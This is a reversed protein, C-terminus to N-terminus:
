FAANHFSEEKRHQYKKIEYFCNDSSPSNVTCIFQDEMDYLDYGHEAEIFYYLEDGHETEIFYYLCDEAPDYICGRYDESAPESYPQIVVYYSLLFVAAVLPIVTLYLPKRNQYGNELIMHFRQCLKKKHGTEALGCGYREILNPKNQKELVYLIGSLYERQQWDALRSCVAKDSHMELAHSVESSLTRFVPNWWFIIQLLAAFLKILQHKSKYHALEHIFFGYWQDDHFSMDPILIVPHFFGIIAPGTINGSQKIVISSKQGGNARTLIDYMHPDSVEPLLHVLRCATHYHWIYRILIAIAGIGWVAALVQLVTIELEPSRICPTFLFRFICALIKKSEIIITFPLKIPFLIRIICLLLMVLLPYISFTKLFSMQNRLLSIVKIFISVWIISLFFTFVTLEM